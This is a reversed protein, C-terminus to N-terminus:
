QSNECQINEFLKEHIAVMNDITYGKIKDLSYKGFKTRVDENEVLYNAKDAIMESNEVPVIYGNVGDEILEIAAICKDTSIVPLGFSMAENIVLGWIDERTPFVFVDAAKYYQALENKPKFEVFKINANIKKALDIYEKTPKGGVIFVEIDKNMAQAARILVDNGKRHIFQGVSLVMYKGAIGLEKKIEDKEKKSILSNLLDDKCMSTFPYRIISNKKAGYHILYADSKDSPSLWKKASSILLRKWLETVKNESKIYGGDTEIIFSIKHRRMYLIALQATLTSYMGILIIDYDKRIWKKIEPCVKKDGIHKQEMFVPRFGVYNLNFWKRDRFGHEEPREEFLVTLECTKGLETFFSVRYPSPCNTLYLVKIM